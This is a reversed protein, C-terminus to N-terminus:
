AITLIYIYIYIYIYIHLTYEKRGCVVKPKWREFLQWRKLVFRWQPIAELFSMMVFNDITILGLIFIETNCLETMVDAVCLCTEPLPFRDVRSFNNFGDPVIALFRRWYDIGCTRADVCGVKSDVSELSCCNLECTPGCPCGDAFPGASSNCVMALTLFRLVMLFDNRVITDQSFSNEKRQMVPLTLNVTLCYSITAAAM